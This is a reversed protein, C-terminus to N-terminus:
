QIPPPVSWFASMNETQPDQDPLWYPVLSADGTGLKSKDIATVWMQRRTTGKTGAQANGYDRLSYFVMWFYGGSDYPSFNPLFCNAAGGCATDLRVPAGGGSPVLFLSGPYTVESTGNTNRGRSNVGAAFAIYASDPSFTPWSPAAYAPDVAAAQVLPVPAGFTDNASVAITSLDGRDYDVAWPAPNGALTVNNVFV